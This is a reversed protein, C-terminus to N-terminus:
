GAPRSRLDLVLSKLFRVAQADPCRATAACTTMFYDRFSAILRPHLIMSCCYGKRPTRRASPPFRRSVWSTWATSRRAPFIEPDKWFYLTFYGNHLHQDLLHELLTPASGVTFPRMFEFHETIRGTQAFRALAAQSLLIHKARRSFFMNQYRAEQLKLLAELM